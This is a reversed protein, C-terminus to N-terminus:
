ITGRKRKRQDEKRGNNESVGLTNNADQALCVGTSKERQKAQGVSYVDENGAARRTRPGFYM